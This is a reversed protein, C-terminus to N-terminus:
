KRRTSSLTSLSVSSQSTTMRKTAREENEKQLQEFRLIDEVNGKVPVGLATSSIKSTTTPM